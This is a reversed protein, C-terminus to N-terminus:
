DLEIEKEMRVMGGENKSKKKAAAIPCENEGRPHRSESKAAVTDVPEVALGFRLNFKEDVAPSLSGSEARWLGVLVLVDM